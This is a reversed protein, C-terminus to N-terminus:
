VFTQVTRRAHPMGHGELVWAADPNVDRTVLKMNEPNRVFLTPIKEM